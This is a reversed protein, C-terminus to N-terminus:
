KRGENRPVGKTGDPRSLFRPGGKTLGWGPQVGQKARALPRAQTRCTAGLEACRYAEPEAEPALSAAPNVRYLASAHPAKHPPSGESKPIGGKM